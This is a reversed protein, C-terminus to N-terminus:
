GSISTICYIFISITIRYQWRDVVTLQLVRNNINQQTYNDNYSGQIYAGVFGYRICCTYHKVICRGLMLLLECPRSILLRHVFRRCISQRTNSRRWGIFLTAFLAVIDVKNILMYTIYKCDNLLKNQSKLTQEKKIEFLICLNM